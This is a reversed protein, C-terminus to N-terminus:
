NCKDVLLRGDSSFGEFESRNTNGFANLMRQKSAELHQNIARISTFRYYDVLIKTGEVAEMLLYLEEGEVASLQWLFNKKRAVFDEIPLSIAETIFAEISAKLIADDQLKPFSHLMSDLYNGLEKLCFTPTTTDVEKEKKVAKRATMLLLKQFPPSSTQLTFRNQTAIGYDYTGLGVSLACTQSKPFYIRYNHRARSVMETFFNQKYPPLFFLRIMNQIAVTKELILNSLNYFSPKQWLLSFLGTTLFWTGKILNTM